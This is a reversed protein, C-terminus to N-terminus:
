PDLRDTMSSQDALQAAQARAMGRAAPAQETLPEGAEIISAGARRRDEEKLRIRHAVPRSAHRQVIGVLNRDVQELPHRGCWATPMSPAPRTETSTGSAARRRQM